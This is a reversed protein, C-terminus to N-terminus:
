LGPLLLPFAGSLSGETDCPQTREPLCSLFVLEAQTHAVLESSNYSLTTGGRGRNTNQFFTSNSNHTQLARTNTPAIWPLRSLDPQLHLPSAPMSSGTLASTTQPMSWFLIILKSVRQNGTVSSRQRPSAYRLGM